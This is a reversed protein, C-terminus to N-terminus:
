FTILLLTSVIMLIPSHVVHTIRKHNRCLDDRARIDDFFEAVERADPVDLGDGFSAEFDYMSADEDLTAQGRQADLWEVMGEITRASKVPIWEGRAAAEIHQALVDPRAGALWRQLHPLRATISNVNWTALKMPLM